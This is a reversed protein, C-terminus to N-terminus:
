SNSDVLIIKVKIPLTPQVATTGDASQAYLTVNGANYTYSYSINAYVEPLQEYTSGGDYSVAVIIGGIQAFNHSIMPVNIPAQYSKSGNNDTYLTWDTTAVDAYVTQNTTAPSIYQKTCSSVALLMVCSIITLIKKM